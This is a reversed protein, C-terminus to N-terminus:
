LIRYLFFLGANNLCVYVIGRERCFTSFDVFAGHLQDKLSGMGWIGQLWAAPKIM